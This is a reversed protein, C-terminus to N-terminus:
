NSALATGELPEKWSSIGQSLNYVSSFGLRNLTRVASLSRRGSGCYVLLPQDQRFLQPARWGIESVPLNIAGRIHGREYESPTRVDVVTLSPTQAVLTSAEDSSLHTVAQISTTPLACGGLSAFSVFSVFSASLTLALFRALKRM